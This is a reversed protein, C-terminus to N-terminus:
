SGPATRNKDAAQELPRILRDGEKRPPLGIIERAENLTILGSKYLSLARDLDKTDGSPTSTTSM